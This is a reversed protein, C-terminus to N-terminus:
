IFYQQGNPLQLVKQRKGTGTSAASSSSKPVTFGKPLTKPVMKTSTPPPKLSFIPPVPPLNEQDSQNDGNDPINVDEPEKYKSQQQQKVKKENTEKYITLIRNERMLLDKEKENEAHKKQFGALMGVLFERTVNSDKLLNKYYSDKEISSIQTSLRHVESAMKSYKFNEMEENAAELKLKVKALEDQLSIKERGLSEIKMNRNNLDRALEIVSYKTTVLEIQVSELESNRESYEELQREMDALRDEYFQVLDSNEEEYRRIVEAANLEKAIKGKINPRISDKPVEYLVKEKPYNGFVRIPKCTIIKRCISCTSKYGSKWDYEYM